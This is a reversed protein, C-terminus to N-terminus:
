SSSQFLSTICVQIFTIEDGYSRIVEETAEDQCDQSVIIPFQQKSPRYRLLGDICRNVTVRNCSFVLIAIVPGKVTADGAQYLCCPMVIINLLYLFTKFLFFFPVQNDDQPEANYQIEGPDLQNGGDEAADIDLNDLGARKAEQVASLDAGKVGDELM